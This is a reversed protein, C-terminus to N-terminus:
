TKKANETYSLKTYINLQRESTKVSNKQIIHGLYKVSDAAFMCKLFKLRLGESNTPQILQELYTVLDSFYKSFLLIHYLM